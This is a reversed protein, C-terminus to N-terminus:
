PQEQQTESTVLNQLIKILWWKQEMAWQVPRATFINYCHQFDPYFSIVLGTRAATVNCWNSVGRRRCLDGVIRMQETKGNSSKERNWDKAHNLCSGMNEMKWRSFSVSNFVWGQVLPLLLMEVLGLWSLCTATSTETRFICLLSWCSPDIMWIGAGLFM